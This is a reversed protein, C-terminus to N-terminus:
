FSSVCTTYISAGSRMYLQVNKTTGQLCARRELLNTHPCTYLIDVLVVVCMPYYIYYDRGAAAAFASVYLTHISTAPHVCYYMSPRVYHYMSPLVDITTGQLCGRRHGGGDGEEGEGGAAM